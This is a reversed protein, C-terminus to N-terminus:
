HGEHCSNSTPQELRTRWLILYIPRNSWFYSRAIASAVQVKNHGVVVEDQLVTQQNGQLRRARYGKSVEAGAMYGASLSLTTHPYYRLLSSVEDLKSHKILFYVLASNRATRPLTLSGRTLLRSPGALPTFSKEVTRALQVEEERRKREM